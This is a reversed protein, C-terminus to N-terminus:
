SVAKEKYVIMIQKVAFNNQQYQIDIINGDYKNLFDNIENTNNIDCVFFKVRIGTIGFMKNM